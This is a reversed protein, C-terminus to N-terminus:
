GLFIDIPYVVVRSVTGPNKGDFGVAANYQRTQYGSQKGISRRVGPLTIGDIVSPMLIPLVDRDVVAYKEDGVDSIVQVCSPVEPDVDHVFRVWVVNM